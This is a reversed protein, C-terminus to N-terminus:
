SSLVSSFNLSFLFFYCCCFPYFLSLFSLFRFVFSVLLFQYYVGSSIISNGRHDIFSFPGFGSNRMGSLFAVLLCVCVFYRGM